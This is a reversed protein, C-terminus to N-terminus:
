ESAKKLYVDRYFKMQGISELIDSKATHSGIKPPLLAQVKTNHRKSFEMFSSVDIIRYMLFDIVKPMERIMFLRDMHISNGAIIGVGKTMFRNLYEYLEDEVQSLTKTSAIVKATLGSDGHHQICWENMQDLREKPCHIVSEYGEEDILNLNKDTILCCIEIIHDNNHDLGTMECDIWVIPK